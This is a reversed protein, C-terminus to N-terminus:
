KAHEKYENQIATWVTDFTPNVVYPKVSRFRSKTAKDNREDTVLVRDGAQPVIGLADPAAPKDSGEFIILEGILSAWDCVVREMGFSVNPSTRGAPSERLSSTVIIHKGLQRLAVLFRHMQRQNAFYDGQEPVFRMRMSVQKGMSRKNAAADDTMEDMLTYVLSDLTDVVITDYDDAREKIWFYLAELDEYGDPVFSDGQGGQLTVSILGGNTDIFLPRPATAAFSTKGRGFDGYVVARLREHELALKTPPHELKRM